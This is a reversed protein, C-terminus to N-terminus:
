TLISMPVYLIVWSMLVNEAFLLCLITWLVVFAVVVVVLAVDLCYVTIINGVVTQEERPKSSTDGMTTDKSTGTTREATEGAEEDTTKDVPEEATQRFIPSYREAGGV